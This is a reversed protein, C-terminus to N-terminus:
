DELELRFQIKAGVPTPVQEGFWVHEKVVRKFPRSGVSIRYKVGTGRKLHFAAEGRVDTQGTLRAGDDERVIVVDVGPAPLWGEDVAEVVLDPNPLPIPCPPAQQWMLLAVIGLVNM